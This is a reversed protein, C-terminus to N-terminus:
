TVRSTHTKQTKRVHFYTHCASLAMHDTESYAGEEQHECRYARLSRERKFIEKVTKISSIHSKACELFITREM